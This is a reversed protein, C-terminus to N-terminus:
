NGSRSKKNKDPLLRNVHLPLFYQCILALLALLSNTHISIWPDVFGGYLAAALTGSMLICLMHSFAADVNSPAHEWMSFYQARMIGQAPFDSVGFGFAGVLLLGWRMGEVGEVYVAVTANTKPDLIFSSPLIACGYGTAFNTAIAIILCLVVAKYRGVKDSMKGLLISGFLAVISQTLFCAAILTPSKYEAAIRGWYMGETNGAWLALTGQLLQDKVAFMRLVAGCQTVLSPTPTTTPTSTTTNTPPPWDKVFFTFSLVGVVSFSFFIWVITSQPVNTEALILLLLFAWVGNLSFLSNFKGFGSGQDKAEFLASVYVGQACWMWSASVGTIASVPYLIWRAEPMNLVLGLVLAFLAFGFSGLIFSARNGIKSLVLAGFFTGILFSGQIISLIFFGMQGLISTLQNAVAFYAGFTFCFSLAVFVVYNPPATANASM